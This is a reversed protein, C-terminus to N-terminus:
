LNILNIFELNLEDFTTEEVVPFLNPNLHRNINTSIAKPFIAFSSIGYSKNELEWGQVFSLLYNKEAIYLTKGISNNSRLLDSLVTIIKGSKAQRFKVLLRNTVRITPIVNSIFGKLINSEDVKHSHVPFFGTHYNNILIDVNISDLYNLFNNFQHEDRFDVKYSKCLPNNIIIENTNYTYLIKYTKLKLLYQVLNFGIGSSGGTILITKM